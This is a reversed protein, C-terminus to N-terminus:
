CDLQGWTGLPKRHCAPVGQRGTCRIGHMLYSCISNSIKVDKNFEKIVMSALDVAANKNAVSDITNRKTTLFGDMYNETLQM